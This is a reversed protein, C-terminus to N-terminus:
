GGCRMVGTSSLSWTGSGFLPIEYSFPYTATVSTPSGSTCATTSVSILAPDLSTAADVTTMVAQAPDKTIALKRVGERTAHTLTVKANYARGFEVMGFILLILIPLLLAFEILSAGREAAPLPCVGSHRAM